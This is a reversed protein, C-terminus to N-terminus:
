GLPSTSRIHSHITLVGDMLPSIKTTAKLERRQILDEVMSRVSVPNDNPFWGVIDDLGPASINRLRRVIRSELDAM